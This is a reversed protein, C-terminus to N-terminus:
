DEVELALVRGLCIQEAEPSFELLRPNVLYDYLVVDARALAERGRLTILGPDGPGAGVLTVRGM